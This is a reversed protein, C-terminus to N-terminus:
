APTADPDQQPQQEARLQEIEARAQELEDQTVLLQFQLAANQQLQRNIIREAQNSETM